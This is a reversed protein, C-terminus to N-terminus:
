PRGAGDGDQWIGTNADREDISAAKDPDRTRPRGGRRAAAAPVPRLSGQVLLSTVAQRCPRARLDTVLAECTPAASRQRAGFTALRVWGRCDRIRGRGLGAARQRAAVAGVRM